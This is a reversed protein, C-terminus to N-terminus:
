CSMRQVSPLTVDGPAEPGGANSVVMQLVISGDAAPRIWNGAVPYRAMAVNVTRDPNRVVDESTVVASSENDLNDLPGVSLSWWRSELDKAAIKYICNARLTSGEDDRSNTYVQFLPQAPPVRGEFLFHARAYPNSSTGSALDWVRWNGTTGAPMSGVSDIFSLASAWGGVVGCLVSFIKVSIRAM